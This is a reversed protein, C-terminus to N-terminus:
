PEAKSLRSADASPPRGPAPDVKAISAFVAEDMVRQARQWSSFGGWAFNQSCHPALNVRDQGLQPEGSEGFALNQASHPCGPFVSSTAAVCRKEEGSDTRFSNTVGSPKKEAGWTDTSGRWPRWSTGCGNM